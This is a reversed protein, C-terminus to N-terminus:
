TVDAGGIVYLDIEEGFIDIMKDHAAAFATNWAVAPTYSHVKLRPIKVGISWTEPDADFYPSLYDLGNEELWEGIDLKTIDFDEVGNMKMVNEIYPVLEKYTTGLILADNITQGM